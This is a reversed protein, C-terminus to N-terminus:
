VDYLYFFHYNKDEKLIWRKDLSSLYIICFFRTDKAIVYCGWRRKKKLGYTISSIFNLFQGQIEPLSVYHLTYIYHWYLFCHLTFTWHAHMLSSLEMHTMFETTRTCSRISNFLINKLSARIKQKYNQSNCVSIVKILLTRRLKFPHLILVRM